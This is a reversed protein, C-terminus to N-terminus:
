RCDLAVPPPPSSIAGNYRAYIHTEAGTPEIKVTVTAAEDSGEAPFQITVSQGKAKALIDAPVRKRFTLFSSETRKTPRTMRLVM